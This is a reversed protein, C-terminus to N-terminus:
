LEGQSAPEITPKAIADLVARMRIVPLVINDVLLSEGRNESEEAHQQPLVADSMARVHRDFGEFACAVPAGAATVLWRLPASASRGLLLALDYVPVIAGRFGAIGVLGAARSPVPTIRRDAFLGAIDGLRLACREAGVRVILFDCTQAAERRVPEAFARDFDLRLAAARDVAGLSM